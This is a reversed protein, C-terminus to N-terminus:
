KLVMKGLVATGLVAVTTNNNDNTNKLNNTKFSKKSIVNIYSGNLKKNQSSWKGGGLM